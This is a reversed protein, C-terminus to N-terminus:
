TALSSFAEVYAEPVHRKLMLLRISYKTASSWDQLFLMGSNWDYILTEPETTVALSYRKVMNGAMDIVTIVNPSYSVLYLYDGDTEMGQRTDPWITDLASVTVSSLLNFSADYTLMSKETDFAIFHGTKRDYALCWIQTASGGTKTAIYTHTLAMDNSPDLEYVEGTTNMSVVYVKGTTPNFAADNAHGYGGATFTYITETGSYVNYKAIKGVSYLVSYINGDDDICSGQTQGATTSNFLSKIRISESLQRDADLGPYVPDGNFKYLAM